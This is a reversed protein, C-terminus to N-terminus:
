RSGRRRPAGLSARVERRLDLAVSTTWAFGALSAVFLRISAGDQSPWASLLLASVATVASYVAWGLRRSAVFRRVLVLCCAVLATFAVPPAVAHVTGHWTLESPIADPTGPPYGLAPDPLFLGGLVLGVGFVGALLPAWTRGPGASLVRRMGWAFAMILVGTTVFNAIQVWGHEGLSLLSLPQHALSFGDRTLAQAAVLAAFLPGAAAGAILLLDDRRANESGGTAIGATSYTETHANM